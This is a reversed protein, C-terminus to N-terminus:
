LTVSEHASTSTTRSQAYHWEYALNKKIKMRLDTRAMRMYADNSELFCHALFYNDVSGENQICYLLM